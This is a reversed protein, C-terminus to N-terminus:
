CTIAELDRIREMVYRRLAWYDELEDSAYLRSTETRYRERVILIRSM